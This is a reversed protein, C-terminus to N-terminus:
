GFCDFKSQIPNSSAAPKKRGLTLSYCADHVAKGDQNTGHDLEFAVPQDCIACPVFEQLINM